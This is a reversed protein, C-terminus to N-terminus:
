CLRLRYEESNQVHIYSPVFHEEYKCVRVYTEQVIDEIEDPPVIKAVSKSLRSKISEFLNTIEKNKSM